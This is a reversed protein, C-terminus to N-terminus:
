NEKVLNKLIKEELSTLPENVSTNLRRLLYKDKKPYLNKEEGSHPQKPPTSQLFESRKNIPYQPLSLSCHPLEDMQETWEGSGLFYNYFELENAVLATFTMVESVRYDKHQVTNEAANKGLLLETFSTDENDSNITVCSTNIHGDIAACETQSESPSIVHIDSAGQAKLLQDEPLPHTIKTATGSTKPYQDEPLSVANANSTDPEEPLPINNTAATALSVNTASYIDFDM